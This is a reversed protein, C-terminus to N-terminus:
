NEILVFSNWYYPTDPYREQMTIVTKRFSEYLNSTDAYLKYFTIMFESTKEDDVDNLSSIINQVSALSFATTLGVVQMNSDSSHGSMTSCASLVVLETQSFDCSAIANSCILNNGLSDISTFLGTNNMLWERQQIDTNQRYYDFRDEFLNFSHERQSAYGHTALHLIKPSRGSLLSLSEATGEDDMKTLIEMGAKELVEAIADIEVESYKLFGKEAGRKRSAMSDGYYLGGYLFADNNTYTKRKSIINALSSSRHLKYRNYPPDEINTIHYELGKTDLVGYYVYIDDDKSFHNPLDIVKWFDDKSFEDEISIPIYSLSGNPSNIFAGIKYLNCSDRHAVVDIMGVSSNDASIFHKYHATPIYQKCLAIVKKKINDEEKFLSYISDRKTDSISILDFIDIGKYRSKQELFARYQQKLIKNDSTNITKTLYKEVDFAIGQQFVSLAFAHKIFVPDNCDELYEFVRQMREISNGWLRDVFLTNHQEFIRTNYDIEANVYEILLNEDVKGLSLKSNILDSMCELRVSEMAEPIKIKLAMSLYDISRRIDKVSKYMLAMNYYASFLKECKKKGSYKKVLNMFLSEASKYRKIDALFICLSFEDINLNGNNEEYVKAMEILIKNANEFDDSLESLYYYTMMLSINDEINIHNSLIWKELKIIASKYDAREMELIVDNCEGAYESRFSSFYFEANHQNIAPHRSEFSLFRDLRNRRYKNFLDNKKVTLAMLSNQASMAACAIKVADCLVSASLEPLENNQVTSVNEYTTKGESMTKEYQIESLLQCITNAKLNFEKEHTYVYAYEPLGEGMYGIEYEKGEFVVKARGKNFPYAADLIFGLLYRGDESVYTWKKNICVPAWGENIPLAYDYIPAIITYCNSNLVKTSEGEGKEWHCVKSSFLPNYTPDYKCFGYMGGKKIGKLRYCAINDRFSVFNGYPFLSEISDKSLQAFSEM